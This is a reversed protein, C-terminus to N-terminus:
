RAFGLSVLKSAHIADAVALALARRPEGGTLRLYMEVAAAVDSRKQELATPMEARDAM